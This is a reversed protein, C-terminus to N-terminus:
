HSSGIGFIPYRCGERVVRAERRRQNRVVHSHVDDAEGSARLARILVDCRRRRVVRTSRSVSERSAFALTVGALLPGVIRGMNFQASSLSVAAFVEDRDVLDPLLSQWAAWSASSCLGDVIALLV